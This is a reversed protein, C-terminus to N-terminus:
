GCDVPRDADPRRAKVRLNPRYYNELYDRDRDSCVTYGAVYWLKPKAVAGNQWDGRGAERSRLAYISVNNPRVSTQHHETFTNPAKIFVM